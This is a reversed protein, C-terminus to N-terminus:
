SLILLGIGIALMSISAIWLWTITRPARDPHRRKILHIIHM